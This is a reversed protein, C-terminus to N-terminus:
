KTLGKYDDGVILLDLAGVPSTYEVGFGIFLRKGKLQARDLFFDTAQELEDLKFRKCTCCKRYSSSVFVYIHTLTMVKEKKLEELKENFFQIAESKVMTAGIQRSMRVPQM